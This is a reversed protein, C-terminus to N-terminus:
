FLLVGLITCFIQNSGCVILGRRDLWFNAFGVFITKFSYFASSPVFYKIPGVCLWVVVIWDSILFILVGPHTVACRNRGELIQCRFVNFSPRVALFLRRPATARSISRSFRGSTVLMNTKWHLFYLYCGRVICVPYRIELIKGSRCHLHTDKTPIIHQM